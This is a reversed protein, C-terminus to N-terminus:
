FFVSLESPWLNGQGDGGQKGHWCCCWTYVIWKRWHSVGLDLIQKLILFFINEFPLFYSENKMLVWPFRIKGKLSDVDFYISLLNKSLFPESVDMTPSALKLNCLELENVKEKIYFNPWICWHNKLLLHNQQTNYICTIWNLLIISCNIPINEYLLMKKEYLLLKQCCAISTQFLM